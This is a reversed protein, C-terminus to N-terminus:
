ISSRGQHCHCSPAPDPAARPVVARLPPLRRLTSPLEGEAFSPVAKWATRVLIYIFQAVATAKITSRMAAQRKYRDAIIQRFQGDDGAGPAAARVSSTASM